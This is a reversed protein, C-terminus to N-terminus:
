ISDVNDAAGSNDVSNSGSEAAEQSDVIGATGSNYNAASSLHDIPTERPNIPVSPVIPPLIPRPQLERPTFKPADRRAAGGTKDTPHATRKAQSKKVARSHPAQHKWYSHPHLATTKSM